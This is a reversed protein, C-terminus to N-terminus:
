WGGEVAVPSALERAWTLTRRLSPCEKPQLKGSQHAGGVLCPVGAAPVGVQILSWALPYQTGNLELKWTVGEQNYLNSEGPEVKRHMSGVVSGGHTGLVQVGVIVEQGGGQLIFCGRSLSVPSEPQLGARVEGCQRSKSSSEREHRQKEGAKTSYTYTDLVVFVQCYVQHGFGPLVDYYQPTLM